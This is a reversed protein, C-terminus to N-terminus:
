GNLAERLFDLSKERWEVLKGSHYKELLDAFRVGGRRENVVCRFPKEFIISFVTGHFSDTIVFSADRFIAIWEEITLKAQGYASYRLIPLGRKKAEETITLDVEKASDLVYAALYRKKFVPVKMCLEAYTEKRVLLTPDLVAVADIGLYRECLAVGSTERVSVADFLQALSSCVSTQKESYEWYDVGFSAAYAVRKGSFNGAFHLFMDSLRNVNYIPRWTQDSGVLLAELGYERIMEMSYNRCTPTKIINKSVFEEFLPM